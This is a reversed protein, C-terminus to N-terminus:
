SKRRIVKGPRADTQEGREVVIEGEILVYEIGSPFRMPEAYTAQDQITAPDFVVLDAKHGRAITGRDALGLKQAPFGSAKWSAEELSLVGEERVYQGLIRPYTGFFRPHMLGKAMQGGPSVGLGDTGFMMAPHRLQMRVNEEAMLLVVMQINGRTALLASLVWAYPDKGEKAALESVFHGVYARNVSGGILVKDWEINAVLGGQGARMAEIIRACEEPRKLRGLLAPTGGELAWKPLLVALYTAGGVYPYMDATVDLGESRAQDITELARAAKDWNARGAAKFHSIQVAAGARSGIQIAEQIADILTESEGRVHSFYLGGRQGVPMVVQILDETHTLSGPPYILGSSIGFAGCDMAEHALRQMQEIRDRTPRDARYGWVAARIMGHGVLPVVHVSPRMQELTSLFSEFSSLQDWPMSIEPHIVMGITRLTEERHEQTLPAPSLGCQGTVVTTIGQHVLSEAEPEVLLALDTHSHM